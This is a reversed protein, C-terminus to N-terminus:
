EGSEPFSYKVSDIGSSLKRLVTLVIRGSYKPCCKAISRYRTHRDGYAAIYLRSINQLHENLFGILVWDKLM